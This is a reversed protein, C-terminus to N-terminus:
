KLMWEKIAYWAAGFAAGVGVLWKIGDGMYGAFKFLSEGMVVIERVKETSASNAALLNEIRAMRDNGHDFQSEMHSEVNTIRANLAALESTHDRNTM